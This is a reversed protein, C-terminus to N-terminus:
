IFNTHLRNINNNYVTYVTVPMNELLSHPRFILFFSLLNTRKLFWHFTCMAINFFSSNQKIMIYLGYHGSKAAVRSYAGDGEILGM